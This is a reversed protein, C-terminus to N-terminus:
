CSLKKSCLGEEHLIRKNTCAAVVQVFPNAVSFIKKTSLLSNPMGTFSIATLIALCFRICSCVPHPAYSGLGQVSACELYPVERNRPNRTSTNTSVPSDSFKM